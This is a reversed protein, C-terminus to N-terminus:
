FVDGGDLTAPAQMWHLRRFPALAAGRSEAGPRRSKAGMRPMVAREDGAVVPAEVFVSDPLDPEAPLAIVNIGLEALCERYRRHQAVARDIDIEQRELYTLECRNMSPSVARTIATLM